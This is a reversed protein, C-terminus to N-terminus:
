KKQSFTMKPRPFPTENQPFDIKTRRSLWNPNPQFALKLFTLKLFTLKPQPFVSKTEAFKIGHTHSYVLEFKPTRKQRFIPLESSILDNQRKEDRRLVGSSKWFFVLNSRIDNEFFKM